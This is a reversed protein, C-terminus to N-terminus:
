HQLRGPPPLAQRVRRLRAARREDLFLLQPLARQLPQAVAPQDAGAL